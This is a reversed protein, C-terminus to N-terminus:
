IIIIKLSIMGGSFSPTPASYPSLFLSPSLSLSSSSLLTFSHLAAASADCVVGDWSWYGWAKPAEAADVVTVAIEVRCLERYVQLSEVFSSQV